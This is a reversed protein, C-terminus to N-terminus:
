KSGASRSGHESVHARIQRCSHEPSGPSFQPRHNLVVVSAGPWGPMDNLRRGHIVRDSFFDFLTGSPSFRGTLFICRRAIRAPSSGDTASRAQSLSSWVGTRSPTTSSVRLSARELDLPARILAPPDHVVGLNYIYGRNMSLSRSRWCCRRARPSARSPRDGVATAATAVGAVVALPTVYCFYIPASFPFQVLSAWALLRLDRVSDESTPMTFTGPCCSAASRCRAVAGCIRAGGALHGSVVHRQVPEGRAPHAVALGCCGGGSVVASRVRVLLRPFRCRGCCSAAHWRPAVARRANRHRRVAARKQPLVFVGYVLTASRGISAVYPAVFCVLPLAAAAVAVAPAALAEPSGRRSVLMMPWASPPQVGCDAAAFVPADSLALRAALIM